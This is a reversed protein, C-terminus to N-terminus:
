LSALADQLAPMDFGDLTRGNKLREDSLYVVSEDNYKKFFEDTMFQLKGWTVVVLQGERRAAGAIYHGGDVRAGKVVYWAKGADFQNMASSPFEIGIGVAGFLYMALLHQEINGPDLALYAGVKHRNGKADLIGTKRRYDAALQMDTGQDTYDEGPKFGTVASYDSLVSDDTFETDVGVERCWMMTEHAAGAWVCDGYKDNALLQWQQVLNEHGFEAPPTPLVARTAFDRMRLKVAGPRAPTKGLKM